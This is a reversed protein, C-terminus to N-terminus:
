LGFELQIIQAVQEFELGFQVPICSIWVWIWVLYSNLDQPNELGFVFFGITIYNVKNFPDLDDVEFATFHIMYIEFIRYRASNTSDM